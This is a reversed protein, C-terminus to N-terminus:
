YAHGFYLTLTFTFTLASRDCLDLIEGTMCDNTKKRKRGLVEETTELLATNAAENMDEISQEGLNALM